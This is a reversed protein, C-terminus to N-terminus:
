PAVSAIATREQPVLGEPPMRPRLLCFLSLSSFCPPSLSILPSFLHSPSAGYIHLHLGGCYPVAAIIRTASALHMHLGSLRKRLDFNKKVVEILEADTRGAM